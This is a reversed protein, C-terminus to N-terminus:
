IGDGDFKSRSKAVKAHSKETLKANAIYMQKGRPSKWSEIRDVRSMVTYKTVSWLDRERTLCVSNIMLAGAAVHFYIIM